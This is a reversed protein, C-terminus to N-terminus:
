SLMICMSVSVQTLRCLKLIRLEEHVRVSSVHVWISLFWTWQRKFIGGELFPPDLYWFGCQSQKPFKTVRITGEWQSWVVNRRLLYEQMQVTFKQNLSTFPLSILLRGTVNILQSDLSSFDACQLVDYSHYGTKQWPWASLFIKITNWRNLLIHRILQM